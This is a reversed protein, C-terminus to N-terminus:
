GFILFKVVAFYERLYSNLPILGIKPVSAALTDASLGYSEAIMKARFLHFDNSVLVIHNVASLQEILPISNRINESTTHSDEELFLRNAAIGYEILYRRMAEAESVNEGDGQGGSLIALSDPNDDMYALATNLRSVLAASPTDGYVGTGLVVLCDWDQVKDGDAAGIIMSEVYIFSVVLLSFGVFMALKFIRCLKRLRPSIWPYYLLAIAAVVLFLLAVFTLLFSIGAISKRFLMFGVFGALGIILLKKQLLM